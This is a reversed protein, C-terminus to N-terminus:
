RLVRLDPFAAALFHSRYAGPSFYLLQTGSKTPSLGKVISFYIALFYFVSFLVMGGTLAAFSTACVNYNRFIDLPMLPDTLNFAKPCNYAFNGFRRPSVGNTEDEAAEIWRDLLYEWVVM